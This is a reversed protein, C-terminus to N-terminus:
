VSVVTWLFRTRFDMLATYASPRNQRILLVLMTPAPIKALRHAKEEPSYGHSLKVRRLEDEEWDYLTRWGDTALPSLEYIRGDDYTPLIM